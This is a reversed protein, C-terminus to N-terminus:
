KKSRSSGPSSKSATQSQAATIEEMRKQVKLGRLGSIPKELARRYWDGARRMMLLRDEGQRADAADWWADGLALPNEPSDPSLKRELEALRKLEPDNGKALFPLGQRWDNRAFCYLRGLTLNARSDDPSSALAAKTQEILEYQGRLRDVEARVTRVEDRYAKAFPRQCLKQAQAVANAAVDFRDAAVAEQVVTRTSRVLARAAPEDTANQAMKSLLKEKAALADVQFGADMAEVAAFLVESDHAVAALEAARRLMTFREVPEGEPKIGLALLQKALNVKDAATKARSFDYARDMEVTAKAQAARDPAPL